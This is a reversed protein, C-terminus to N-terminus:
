EDEHDPEADPDFAKGQTIGLGDRYLMPVKWNEGVPELFGIEALFEIAQALEDGDLKLTEALSQHNHEAKDNRFREILPAQEGAEALLTDEVRRKSLQSLGTKFSDQHFLPEGREFDRGEREERRISADQTFKVLDILNRPPQVYNGDRIRSMMWNWTKPKRKGSDVQDPLLSDFLCNQDERSCGVTEVFEENEAIRRYLLHALDEEEWVIEVKRANVHTLNVFGTGIIRRFLDKRLFLKLKVRDFPVVDLYTRLLARLAPVEAAPMGAFAEDLRDLVLWLSIDIEDLVDNLLGLAEHHEVIVPRSGKHNPAEFEVRPVIVPLGEKTVEIRAEAASPNMLRRFLNVIASFVTSPSDDASRLGTDRLLEDLDYMSDTWADEFVTLIYNGALSLIYAKWLTSYQDESYVEGATLTQFVPNGQINFAPLVEVGDLDPISAYREHLIRFLATKGTGKDGAIIDAQDTVMLRFTETEVFYRQLASDFEAVSNGLDLKRLVELAEVDAGSM